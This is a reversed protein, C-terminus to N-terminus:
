SSTPAALAAMVLGPMVNTSDSPKTPMTMMQRDCSFTSVDFEMLLLLAMDFRNSLRNPTLSFHGTATTATFRMPTTNM